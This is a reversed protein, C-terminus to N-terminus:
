NAAWRLYIGNDYTVVHRLNDLLRPRSLWLGFTGFLDGTSKTSAVLLWYVPLLFYGAAAVLLGTVVVRSRLTVGTISTRSPAAHAGGTIPQPAPASRTPTQ